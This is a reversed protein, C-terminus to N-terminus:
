LLGLPNVIVVGKRTEFYLRPEKTISERGLTGITQGKKVKTQKSVNVSALNGYVTVISGHDIIIVSGLGALTGTFIVTGDDAAKVSQGLKGAIEIGNSNLGEIKEEGYKVKIEGLLPLALTGTGNAAKTLALIEREKEADTKEKNNRILEEQAKKENEKKTLANSILMQIQADLRKKESILNTNLKQIRSNETNLKSQLSKLDKVAANKNKKAKDLEQKQFSVEKKLENVANIETENLQKNKETKIKLNEYNSKKSNVSEIYKTQKELIQHLSHKLRDFSAVSSINNNENRAKIIKDWLSIVEEYHGKNLIIEYNSENIEQLSKKITEENQGIARLLEVYKKEVENYKAQISDIDKNLKLIEKLLEQETKKAKNISNLNNTLKKQNDELQKNIEEIKQRRKQIEDDNPDASFSIISFLILSLMILAKKM